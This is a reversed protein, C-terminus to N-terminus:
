IPEEDNVNKSDLNKYIWTTFEGMEVLLYEEGTM